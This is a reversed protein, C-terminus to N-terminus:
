IKNIRLYIYLLISITFPCAVLFYALSRSFSFFFSNSTHTRIQTQTHTKHTDAFVQFQVSLAAVAVAFSRLSFNTMRVTIYYCFLCPTSTPM